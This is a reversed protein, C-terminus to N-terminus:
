CEPNDLKGTKLGEQGITASMDMVTTEQTIAEM